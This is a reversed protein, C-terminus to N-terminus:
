LFLINNVTHCGCYNVLITKDIKIQLPGVFKMKLM